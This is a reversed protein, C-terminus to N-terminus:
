RIRLPLLDCMEDHIQRVRGDFKEIRKATDQRRVTPVDIIFHRQYVAVTERAFEFLVPGFRIDPLHPLDYSSYRRVSRIKLSHFFPQAM